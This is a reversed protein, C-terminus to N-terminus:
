QQCVLTGADTLVVRLHKMHPHKLNKLYIAFNLSNDALTLKEARESKRKPDFNASIYTKVVDPLDQYKIRQGMMLYNSLPDFFLKMEQRPRTATDRIVVETELGVPCLSDSEAHWIKWGPWNTGIYSVIAVPLSDINIWNGPCGHGPHGHGPHLSDGHPGPGGGGDFDQGDGLCNGNGDFALQEETSLTVLYLAQSNTQKTAAYITADPYNNDIYDTVAPPLDAVNMTSTSTTTSSTTGSNEKKCSFMALLSILMIIEIKKM